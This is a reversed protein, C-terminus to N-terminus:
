RRRGSLAYGPYEDQAAAAATLNVDVTAFPKDATTQALVKRIPRHDM